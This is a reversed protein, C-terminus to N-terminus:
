RLNINGKVAGQKWHLLYHKWTLAKRVGAGQQGGQMLHRGAEPIEETGM